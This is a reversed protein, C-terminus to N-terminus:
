TTARWDGPLRFLNHMPANLGVRKADLRRYKAQGTERKWTIHSPHTPRLVLPRAPVRM